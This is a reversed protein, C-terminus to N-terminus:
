QDDEEVGADRDFVRMKRAYGWIILVFVLISGQQAMWFGLPFGTGPITIADLQEKFLVGAGLGAVFWVGLLVGTLRLVRRWYRAHQQEMPELIPESRHGRGSGDWRVEQHGGGFPEIAFSTTKEDIGATRDFPRDGGVGVGVMGWGSAILVHARLPGGIQNSGSVSWVLVAERELPACRMLEALHHDAQMGGSVDHAGRLNADLREITPRDPHDGAVAFVIVVGGGFRKFRHRTVDEDNFAREPERDVMPGFGLGHQRLDVIPPGGVGGLLAGTHDHGIRHSFRLTQQGPKIRVNSWDTNM